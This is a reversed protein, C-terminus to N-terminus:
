SKLFMKERGPPPIKKKPKYSFNPIINKLSIWWHPTALHYPQPNQNRWESTRIREGWFMERTGNPPVRPKGSGSADVEKAM